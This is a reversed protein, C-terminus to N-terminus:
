FNFSNDFKWTFTEKTYLYYYEILTSSGQVGKLWIENVNCTYIADNLLAGTKPFCYVISKIEDSDMFILIMIFNNSNARNISIIWVFLHCSDRFAKVYSVKYDSSFHVSRLSKNRNEVYRFMPKSFYLYTFLMCQLTMSCTKRQMHRTTMNASAQTLIYKM